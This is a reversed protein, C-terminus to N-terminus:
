VESVTHMKMENQKVKLKITYNSSGLEITSKKNERGSKEQFRNIKNLRSRGTQKLM